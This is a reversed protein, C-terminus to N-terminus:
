RLAAVLDAELAEASGTTYGERKAVIAGRRDILVSFPATGKPDYLALVRTEQDLLVPFTVGLKRVEARVAAISDPGDIAIGLVVLGRPGYKRHLAELEPLEALCPECSTAWFDLLVVDRGLHDALRVTDGRLTELEFDPATARARGAPSAGRRGSEAGCSLLGLALTAVALM